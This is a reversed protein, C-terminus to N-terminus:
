AVHSMHLSRPSPDPWTVQTSGEPEPRTVHGRHLARAPAKASGSGSGMVLAKWDKLTKEADPEYCETTCEIWPYCSSERGKIFATQM